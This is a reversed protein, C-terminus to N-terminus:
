RQAEVETSDADFSSPFGEENPTLADIRIMPIWEIRVIAWAM